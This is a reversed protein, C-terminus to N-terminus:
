ERGRARVQASSDPALGSLIRSSTHRNEAVNCRVEESPSSALRGLISLPAAVNNSLRMDVAVSYGELMSLLEGSACNLSAAVLLQDEELALIDERSMRGFHRLEDENEDRYIGDCLEYLGPPSNLNIRDAFARVTKAFAKTGTGYSEAPAFIRPAGPGGDAHDYARLVIRASPSKIRIDDADILYAVLSGQEVEHILTDEQEGNRFRLCSSWGRNYSMTVVDLPHRCIVVIQNEKNVSHRREDNEFLPLLDPTRALIKGLRALRGDKLKVIGARYDLCEAEMSWLHYTIKAPPALEESEAAVLKMYLRFINKRNGAGAENFMDQYRTRDWVKMYPRLESLKIPNTM